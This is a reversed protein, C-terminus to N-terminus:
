KLISYLKTRFANSIVSKFIGLTYFNGVFYNPKNQLDKGLLIGQLTEDDLKGSKVLENNNIFVQSSDGNFEVIIIKKQNDLIGDKLKNKAEITLENKKDLSISYYDNIASNFMSEENSSDDLKFQFILTFPQSINFDFNRLSNIGGFHIIDDKLAIPGMSKDPVILDHGKFDFITIITDKNKKIGGTSSAWFALSDLYENDKIMKIQKGFLTKNVINGKSQEVRKQYDKVEKLLKQDNGFLLLFKAPDQAYTLSLFSSLTILFILYTKM